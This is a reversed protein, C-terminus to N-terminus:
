AADDGTGYMGDIVAAADPTWGVYRQTTTVSEHGMLQAVVVLNGNSQRAAETGFLHRLDHPRHEIGIEQFLERVLRSVSTPTMGIILGNRGYTRIEAALAPALPLVRDKGGKGQRVTLSGRARDIDREHLEGVEAVRLGAYACLMIILRTRPDAADLAEDLQARTLPSPRRKPVRPPDINATPDQGILGRRTGWRYFARLDCMLAQRTSAVEQASLFAEVDTQTAETLPRDELADVFRRLTWRRRRITNVSFGRMRQHNSFQTIM